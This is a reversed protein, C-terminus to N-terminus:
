CTHDGGRPNRLQSLQAKHNVMVAVLEPSNPKTNGRGASSHEYYRLAAERWIAYEEAKLVLPHDDLYEILRRVDAQSTVSWSYYPSQTKQYDYPGNLSGGFVNCLTTLLKTSGADVRLAVTLRVSFARGGSPTRVLQFSGEGDILGAVYDSTM